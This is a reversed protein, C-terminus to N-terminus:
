RLTHYRFVTDIFIFLYFSRLVSHFRNFQRTEVRRVGSFKFILILRGEDDSKRRATNNYCVNANM